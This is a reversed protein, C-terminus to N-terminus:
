RCEVTRFTEVTASGTRTWVAKTDWGGANVTASRSFPPSADRTGHAVWPNDGLVRRYWQVGWGTEVPTPARLTM